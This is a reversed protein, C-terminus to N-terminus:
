AGCLTEYSIEPHLYVNQVPLHFVMPVGQISGGLAFRDVFEETEAQLSEHFEEACRKESFIPIRVKSFHSNWYVRLMCACASESTISDGPPAARWLGYGPQPLKRM